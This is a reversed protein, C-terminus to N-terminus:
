PGERLDRRDAAGPLDLPRSQWAALESAVHETVRSILDRSVEAGYIEELHARIEGTTLGQAYLSVIAENFRAVRRAHKSVAAPSATADRPVELPVRGVETLVTKPSTGNRCNGTPLAPREGKEYSLHDAMEADLAVQLM